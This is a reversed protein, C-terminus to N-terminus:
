SSNEASFLEALRRPLTAPDPAAALLPALDASSFTNWFLVRKGDLLGAEADAVLAAFTKGTYTTELLIGSSAAREVAREAEPTPRGYAGGYFRGDVQLESEPGGVPVALGALRREM